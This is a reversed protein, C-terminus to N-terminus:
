AHSRTLSPRLSAPLAGHAAKAGSQSATSQAQQPLILPGKQGCSSLLVTCLLLLIVRQRRCQLISDVLRYM